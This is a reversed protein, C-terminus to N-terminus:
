TTKQKKSNISNELINFCENSYKAQTFYYNGVVEKINKIGRRNRIKNIRDTNISNSKALGAGYKNSELVINWADASINEMGSISGVVSGTLSM